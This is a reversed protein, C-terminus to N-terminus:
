KTYMATTSMYLYISLGTIIIIAPIVKTLIVGVMTGALLLPIMVGALGFDIMFAKENKPHRKPGVVFLNMIAGALITAKSM